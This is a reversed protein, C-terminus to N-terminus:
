GRCGQAAASQDAPQESGLWSTRRASWDRAKGALALLVEAAALAICGDPAELYGTPLDFADALPLLNDAAELELAWDAADDNDFSGRGWAGM